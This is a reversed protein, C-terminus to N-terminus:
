PHQRLGDTVEAGRPNTDGARGYEAEHFIVFQKVAPAVRALINALAQLYFHLRHLRKVRFHLM